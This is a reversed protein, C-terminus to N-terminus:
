RGRAPRCCWIGRGIEPLAQFVQRPEDALRAKRWSAVLAKWLVNSLLRFLVHAKSRHEKRLRLPRIALDSKHIRFAPAAETLHISGRREVRRRLLFVTQRGAPLTNREALGDHVSRWDKALLEREFNGPSNNARGAISRRGGERLFKGNDDGAM